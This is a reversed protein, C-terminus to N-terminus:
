SQIFMALPVVAVANDNHDDDEDYHDYDGDADYDGDDDDHFLKPLFLTGSEGWAPALKGTELNCVCEINMILKTIISILTLTNCVFNNQWQDQQAYYM